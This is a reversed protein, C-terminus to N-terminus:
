CTKIFVQVTYVTSGKKAHGTGVGNWKADLINARHGSSKMYAAEVGDISSGYGVNEGLSCWRQTIGDSLNSHYLRGERALKEAWQQAKANAQANVALAARGNAARDKNLADRVLAQPTPAPQCAAALLLAVGVLAASSTRTTRSSAAM